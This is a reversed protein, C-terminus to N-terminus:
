PCSGTLKDFGAGIRDCLGRSAISIRVVDESTCLMKTSCVVYVPYRYEEFKRLNPTIYQILTPGIGRRDEIQFPKGRSVGGDDRYKSYVTGTAATRVTRVSALLVLSLRNIRLRQETREPLKGLELVLLGIVGRRACDNLILWWFRQIWLKSQRRM